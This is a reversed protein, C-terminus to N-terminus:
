IGEPEYIEETAKTKKSTREDRCWKMWASCWDAYVYSKALANLRFNEFEEEPDPVGQKMAYAKLLDTLEFDNPWPFSPPKKISQKEPLSSKIKSKINTNPNPNPNLIQIGQNAENKSPTKSDEKGAMQKAKALGGLKGSESRIKGIKDVYKRVDEMKKNRFVADNRGRVQLFKARIECSEEVSIGNMRAIFHKEKVEGLDWQDLLLRIYAGTQANTFFRTGTLFDQYYFPFFPPKPM